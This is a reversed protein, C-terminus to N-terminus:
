TDIGMSLDFRESPTAWLQIRKKPEADLVIHVGTSITPGPESNSRTMGM